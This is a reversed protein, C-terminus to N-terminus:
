TRWLYHSIDKKFCKRKGTTLLNLNLRALIWKLGNVVLKAETEDKAEFTFLQRYRLTIIINNNGNITTENHVSSIDFLRLRERLPKIDTKNNNNNTTTTTTTNNQDTLVEWELSPEVAKQNYRRSNTEADRISAGSVQISVGIVKTGNHWRLYIGNSEINHLFNELSTPKKNSTTDNNNNEEINKTPNNKSVHDDDLPDHNHNHHNNCQLREEFSTEREEEYEKFCRQTEPIIATPATSVEKVKKEDEFQLEELVEELEEESSDLDELSDKAGVERGGIAAEISYEGCESDDDLVSWLSDYNSESENEYSSELSSDDYSDYASSDDDHDNLLVLPRGTVAASIANLIMQEPVHMADTISKTMVDLVGVEDVLNSISILNSNLDNRKKESKSKSKTQNKYPKNKNLIISKISDDDDSNDDNNSDNHAYLNTGNNNRRTRTNRSKRGKKSKRNSRPPTIVTNTRTNRSLNNGNGISNNRNSTTSSSSTHFLETAIDTVTEFADKLIMNSEEVPTSICTAAGVAKKSPWPSSLSPSYPPPPCPLPSLSSVAIMSSQEKKNSKSKKLKDKSNDEISRLLTDEEEGIFYCNNSMVTTPSTTDILTAATIRVLANKGLKRVDNDINTSSSTTRTAFSTFIMDNNEELAKETTREAHESSICKDNDIDNTSISSTADTSSKNNVDSKDDTDGGGSNDTTTNQKTNDQQQVGTQVGIKLQTEIDEMVTKVEVIAGGNDGFEEHEGYASNKSDNDSDSNGTTATSISSTSSSRPTESTTTRTRGDADNKKSNISDSNDGRAGIDIHIDITDKDQVVKLFTEIEEM